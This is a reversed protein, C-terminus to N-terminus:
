NVKELKGNVLRYTGLSKLCSSNSSGDTINIVVYDSGDDGVFCEVRAGIHWGGTHGKIGSNATGERTVLGRNGRLYGYFRSM